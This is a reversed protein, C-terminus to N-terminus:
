RKDVIAQKSLRVTSATAFRRPERIPAGHDITLVMPTGDAIKEWERLHFTLILEKREDQRDIQFMHLETAGVYLFPEIDPPLADFEERDVQIKLVLAEGYESARKAPGLRIPKEFRTAELSVIKFPIETVRPKKPPEQAANEMTAGVAILWVIAPAIRGISARAISKTTMSM